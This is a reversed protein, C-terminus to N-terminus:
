QAFHTRVKAVVQRTTLKDSTEVAVDRGAGPHRDLRQKLETKAEGPGFILVRQAAGISSIVADYYAALHGHFRHEQRDDAPVMQSEYPERSRVGAFRGPQKEVKSVILDTTDKGDTLAVVVAKRHDIWLGVARTMWM